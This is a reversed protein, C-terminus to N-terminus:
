SRDKWVDKREKTSFIKSKNKLSGFILRSNNKNAAKKKLIKM